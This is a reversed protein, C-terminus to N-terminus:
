KPRAVSSASSHGLYLKPVSFTGGGLRRVAELVVAQLFVVRWAREAGGSGAIISGQSFYRNAGVVSVLGSSHNVADGHPAHSVPRSQCIGACLVTRRKCGPTALHNPVEDLLDQHGSGSIDGDIRRGIAMVGHLHDDRCFSTRRARLPSALLLRCPGGVAGIHRTSALNAVYIRLALENAIPLATFKAQKTGAM